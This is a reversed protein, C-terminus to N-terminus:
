LSFHVFCSVTFLGASPVGIRHPHIGVAHLPVGVTHATPSWHCARVRVSQPHVGNGDLPAVNWNVTCMFPAVGCQIPTQRLIDFKSRINKNKLKKKHSPLTLNCQYADSVSEKSVHMTFYHVIGKVM